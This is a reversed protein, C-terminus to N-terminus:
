HPRTIQGLIVAARAGTVSPLNGPLGHVTQRALWAFAMAEVWDPHVGSTETTAITCHQLNVQLRQMLYTNHAGGGCILVLQTQAAYQTVTRAISCATLEALTAQVDEARLAAPNFQALWDLCFYEFGTSKPPTIRFYPDELLRQLLDRNITGSRAWDGHSDYAVGNNHQMWADMLNNGPGSDFGIISHSDHAPLLTLNAIGGINVVTRHQDAHHFVAAHFAPALPAGQGGVAMDANRFNSVVAVGIDDAITQANGIQLSFPRLAQPRHRITQGHSGIATIATAAVDAIELLAHAAQAFAHGTQIDLEGLSDLEDDKLKRTDLLARHLRTPWPQCYSRVLRPQGASFDVLAADIGDVSTGSMLGIYLEAM